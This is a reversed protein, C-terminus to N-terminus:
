LDRSKTKTSVAVRWNCSQTIQILYPFRDQFSISTKRKMQLVILLLPWDGMGRRGLGSVLSWMGQPDKGAAACCDRTYGRSAKGGGTYLQGSQAQTSPSKRRGGWCILCSCVPAWLALRPQELSQHMVVLCPGRYRVYGSSHDPHGPSPHNTAGAICLVFEGNVIRFCLRSLKCEGTMLGSVMSLTQFCLKGARIGGGGFDVSQM